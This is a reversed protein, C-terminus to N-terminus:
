KRRGIVVYDFSVNSKGSNAERVVFGSSSSESVYLGNCDGQPTVIVVPDSSPDISNMFVWEKSGKPYSTFDIRAVGDELSASGALLVLVEPSELTYILYELGDVEITGAKNVGSDCQFVPPDADKLKCGRGV